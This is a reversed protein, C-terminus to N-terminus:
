PIKSVSSKKTGKSGTEPIMFAVIITLASVIALSLFIWYYSGTTDLIVGGILPGTIAGIYGVSMVLGSASGAQGPTVMEVPLALVMAFRLSTAMGAFVMLLWSFPINVLLISYCAFTLLVTCGILFPKRRGLRTSLRTLFLVSPIGSILIVATILGAVDPNAGITTLFQPVWGIWTYLVINHLFFLVAALWLDARRILRGLASLDFKVTEVGSSECPPDTVIIWWLIAALVAPLGSVLFVGHYSSTITYLLPRTISLSLAGSVLIAVTFIGLTVNAQERPACHRALKPLNPFCIGLGIGYILTFILLTIFNAPINRLSAGIALVVVGIGIAKKLGIKDALFGGPIAVLALVAVPASYLLATLTHSIGLQGAIIDEIPPVVLLPLWIAFALLLAIGLVRAPLRYYEEAM